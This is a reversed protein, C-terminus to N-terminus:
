FIVSVGTVLGAGPWVLGTPAPPPPCIQANAALYSLIAAGIALWITQNPLDTLGLDAALTPSFTMSDFSLTGSGIVPGGTPAPPAAFTTPNARGHDKIHDYLGKAIARWKEIGKEDTAPISAALADGFSDSDSSFDIRGQGTFAVGDVTAISGDPPVNNVIANSTIWGNMAGILSTVKPAAVPDIGLGMIALALVSETGTLPM